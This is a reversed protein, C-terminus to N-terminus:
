RAAVPCLDGQQWIPKLTLYPPLLSDYPIRTFLEEPIMRDPAVLPLHDPGQHDQGSRATPPKAGLAGRGGRLDRRLAPQSHSRQELAVAEGRAYAGPLALAPVGLTSQVGM